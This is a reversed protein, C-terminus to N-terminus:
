LADALESVSLSSKPLSDLGEVASSSRKVASGASGASPNQVNNGWGSASMFGTVDTCEPAACCQALAALALLLARQM